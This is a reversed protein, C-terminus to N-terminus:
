FKSPISPSAINAKGAFSLAAGKRLKHKRAIIKMNYEGSGRSGSIENVKDNNRRDYLDNREL